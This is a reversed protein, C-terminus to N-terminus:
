EAADVGGRFQPPRRTVRSYYPHHKGASGAQYQCRGPRLLARKRMGFRQAQESRCAMAVCALSGRIRIPLPPRMDGRIQRISRLALGM